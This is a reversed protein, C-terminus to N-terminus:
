QYQVAGGYALWGEVHLPRRNITSRELDGLDGELMYTCRSNLDLGGLCCTLAGVAREVGIKGRELRPSCLGQDLNSLITLIYMGVPFNRPFKESLLHLSYNTHATGVM